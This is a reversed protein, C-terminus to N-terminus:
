NEDLIKIIEIRLPDLSEVASSILNKIGELYREDFINSLKLTVTASTEENDNLDILLCVLVDNIGDITQIVRQLEAEMARKYNKTKQIPDIIEISDFFMEDPFMANIKEITFGLQFISSDGSMMDSLDFIIRDIEDISYQASQLHEKILAFYDPVKPQEEMKVEQPKPTTACSILSVILLALVIIKIVKM